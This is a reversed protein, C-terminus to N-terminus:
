RLLVYCVVSIKPRELFLATPVVGVKPESGFFGVPAQNITQCYSCIVRCICSHVDSELGVIPITFCRADKWIHLLNQGVSGVRCSESGQEHRENRLLKSRKLFELFIWQCQSRGLVHLRCCTQEYVRWRLSCRHGMTRLSWLWHPGVELLLITFNHFQLITM